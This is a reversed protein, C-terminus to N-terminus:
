KINRLIEDLDGGNWITVLEGNGDVQVYTHQYTINYKKKLEKEDDYNTRVILLNEPIEDKRALIDKNAQICTPCWSAHFFLVIKKEQEAATKIISPTYDVYKSNTKAYDSTVGSHVQLQEVTGESVNYEIDRPDTPTTKKSIFSYSIFALIAVIIIIPLLKKM